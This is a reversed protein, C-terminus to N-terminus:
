TTGAVRSLFDAERDFSAAGLLHQGLDRSQNTDRRTVDRSVGHMRAPKGDDSFEVRGHEALWRIQGNPLVVRHEAEYEVGSNFSNQVAQRLSERDDTHIANRFRGSDLKDSPAFGFLARGQESIWIEDREIDWVGLGLGAASTALDMRQHAERLETESAQLQRTLQAARILDHSLEYAMAAVLILYFLSVILPMAIIGWTMAVAQASALVVLL